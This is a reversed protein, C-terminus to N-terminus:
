FSAQLPQDLKRAGVVYHDATVVREGSTAPCWEIGDSLYSERGGLSFGYQEAGRLPQEICDPASARLMM